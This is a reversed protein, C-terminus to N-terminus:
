VVVEAVLKLLGNEDPAFVPLVLPPPNENPAGGAALPTKENPDLLEAAVGVEDVGLVLPKGAVVGDTEAGANPNPPFAGLTAGEDANVKPM